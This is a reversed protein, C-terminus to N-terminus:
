IHILSLYEPGDSQMVRIVRADLDQYKEIMKTYEADDFEFVGELGRAAYLDQWAQLIRSRASALHPRVTFDQRAHRGRFAAM